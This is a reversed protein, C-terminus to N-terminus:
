AGSYFTTLSRFLFISNHCNVLPISRVKHCMGFSRTALVAHRSCPATLLPLIAARGSGTLRRSRRPTTSGPRRHPPDQKCTYPGMNRCRRCWIVQIEVCTVVSAFTSVMAPDTDTILWWWVSIILLKNYFYLFWKYFYYSNTKIIVLVYVSKM